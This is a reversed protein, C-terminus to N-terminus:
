NLGKEIFTRMTPADIAGEFRGIERGEPSVIMMTPVTTVRHEDALQGATVDTNVAGYIVFDVEGAFETQLGNVVPRM